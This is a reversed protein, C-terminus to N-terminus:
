GALRGRLGSIRIKIKKADQRKPMAEARQIMDKRCESCLPMTVGDSGSLVLRGCKACVGEELRSM